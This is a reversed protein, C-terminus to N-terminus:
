SLRVDVVGDLAKIGGAIEASLRFGGKLEIEYERTGHDRSVIFIVQGEGGPKLQSRISPLCRENGAFVTLRRGVKEAAHALAEASILRLSIGDPREDAEVTLIVSNGAVLVDGYQGLQESFAICEYGGSPDSLAMIAMPAGKRTRRDNRSSITGALRGARVGEKVAREFDLWSQVRLREFLEAYQDLPHGSLHFGIAARERELREPPLWAAVNATLLIPEPRDSAFMDVIGDAANANTRQATAVIADIAAFAQERRPVLQDFAGANVLTELTRRNIIRPDVRTAFDALDAFPRDGRAAVIHEAVAQGVGKVAGIAYFVKGEHTDFVADSRNVCPPVVDIGHKAADRRFEDLKDTNGMDLTMTAAFFEHPYHAKLYATQYSVLAYTAAHSKNFGYNAFKALLDFITDAADKTLGYRVAGDRFRVRQADMESKIKKGMARRLLDAEGLSYGSLIQAIQMVQEQYVIIGQTEELVDKLAEHPYEVEDRGHKRDNFLPINDMPGPRYLAVLAILDEFRDPKMDILARRMGAGEVQFVGATDATQYLRYTKKDDLPIDEIRFDGGGRNIMDVARKITTLTKLGLFDFKVLGASESWKMNYQSVPMDSRPDRYLPALEQLPRDGIVIGAAHTSAHRYLGELKRGIALLEAVQEDEDAMARLQPVENLARELTWPDSPNAPVLKAIRDVQGYPMQLVRGVDRLVARAQLTGFTIIQAVQESGYKRQVYRIVEERRDQCFDIDFDPMSVREPNLFREFLLNYRLPDLDTITTAWAVLSGAGSGRGPGVPIGQSKAWQIFDAVILFYGPYKMREIIGLEYELRERYDQESRGPAPGVTALRRDLGARAMEGLARAEAAVAESDNLEPAAAFKPLVPDRKRPRYSVRQAIEVSNALAEPLDAFLTEMEARTKFYHQDSLKRRETQALVSGAAIALLADHAEFDDRGPFFPENTAVLPIGNLYAYDILQAENLAEQRRGHRQLEVYFRDGFLDHLTRLRQHAHADLGNAFYPDVAGEPGGSLCIIGSLSDRDLWALRAAPKGPEGEIYAKSVLRSLNGFGREDAAILVVGGKGFQGHAHSREQARDETEGFDLALECGILPQIGKGAAKESFELAGFLNNTDAIGLAPQKDAKALELLRGLPLAGELLSYASHVHLHVFGPGAM